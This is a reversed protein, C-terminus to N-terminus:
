HGNEPSDLNALGRWVGMDTGLSCERPVPGLEECGRQCLGMLDEKFARIVRQRTAGVEMTHKMWDADDM